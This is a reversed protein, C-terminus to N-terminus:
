LEFEQAIWLFISDKLSTAPHNMTTPNDKDQLLFIDQTPSNVINWKEGEVMIIADPPNNDYGYKLIHENCQTIAHSIQNLLNSLKMPYENLIQANETQQKEM